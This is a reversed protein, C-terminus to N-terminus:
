RVREIDKDTWGGANYAAALAEAVEKSTVAINKETGDARVGVIFYGNSVQGPKSYFSVFGKPIDIGPHHYMGKKQGLLTMFKTRIVDGEKIIDRIRM